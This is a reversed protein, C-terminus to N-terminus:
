RARSERCGVTSHGTVFPHELVRAAPLRKEPNRYLLLSLLHRAVPDGVLSLKTAKDAETWQAALRLQAGSAANDACDAHLLTQGTLAHFLTAGLGWLDFAPAAILAAPGGADRAGWGGGDLPVLLEPPSYATSTKCGIM